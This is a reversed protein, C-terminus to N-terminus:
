CCGTLLESWWSNNRSANNRAYDANVLQFIDYKLNVFLVNQLPLTKENWLSVREVFTIMLQLGPQRFILSLLPLAIPRKDDGGWPKLILKLFYYSTLKKTLVM